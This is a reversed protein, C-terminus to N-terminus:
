PTEFHTRAVHSPKAGGELGHGSGTRCLASGHALAPQCSHLLAERPTFRSLGERSRQRVRGPASAPQGFVERVLPDPLCHELPGTPEFGSSHTHSDGQYRSGAGVEHLDSGDVGREVRARVEFREDHVRPLVVVPSQGLEEELLQAHGLRDHIKADARAAM